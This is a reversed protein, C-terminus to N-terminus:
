SPGERESLVRSLRLALTMVLALVLVLVPFEALQVVQVWFPQCHDIM